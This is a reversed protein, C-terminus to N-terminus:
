SAEVWSSNGGSWVLSVDGNVASITGDTNATIAVTQGAVPTIEFFLEQVALRVKATLEIVSKQAIFNNFVEETVETTGACTACTGGLAEPGDCAPCKIKM